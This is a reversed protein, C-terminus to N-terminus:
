YDGSAATAQFFKLQIKKLFRALGRDITVDAHFDAEKGIKGQWHVPM